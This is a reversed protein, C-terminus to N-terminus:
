LFNRHANEIAPPLPVGHEVLDFLAENSKDQLCLTACERRPDFHESKLYELVEWYREGAWIDRFRDKAIDGIHHERYRDNFFSGCPAVLGTGSM